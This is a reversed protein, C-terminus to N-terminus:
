WVACSKKPRMPSGEQCSFAKWFQPNNSLSGNVRFRPPSHPDITALRRVEDPRSNTCWLQGVALFFQQDETFGGAVTQEKANARMARYAEFALKVGGNDAINEGTTLHGNLKVGPLPSYQGYQDAICETKAEFKTKTAPTWWNQLNGQATFQAGEDDFAHTLEHGVVMGMGGMNVAVAADHTYFPPQLIGAPFVMQNKQPDYYANVTPPTMDWDDLNVPKGIKELQRHLEYARSTLLNTAYSPTVTWDYRKWKAPYGIHYSMAALKEHAKARTQADMWDLGDLEHGMAHSIAFVMKKTAQKSDPGFKRAVFPQALLEGLSDDTAEVCRKWRPELQEQGTLLKTLAFREDVFPKPLAGAMAEVLHYDLYARWAAPKVTGLLHDMGQLFPVSAVNIDKLDPKGVAAFYENWPFAPAAKEVGARDIKHYVATPQRREVRSQSIKALKTELAVVESAGAKAERPKDGLLELMREVHAQYQTRLAKSKDDEKLYYDRDPLGLGGQDIDLIMKTADKMDQEADVNFPVGVQVKELDVIAAGLTRVNKVGRIEKLLPEIPALGAKDIKTKDLCADYFQGLKDLVPDPQGAALSTRADDLIKHLTEKNEQDIVNFSRTWRSKDAPIPTTKKWQGCAFQYFDDCPNVTRDMAAPDLGVAQLTTQRVVPQAVPKPVPAQVKPKAAEPNKACAAGLVLALLVVSKTRVRM